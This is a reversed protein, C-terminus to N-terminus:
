PIVQQLHRNSTVTSVRAEEREAIITAIDEPIEVQSALIFDLTTNLDDRCKALLATAENFAKVVNKHQFELLGHEQRLRDLELNEAQPKYGAIQQKLQDLVSNNSFSV